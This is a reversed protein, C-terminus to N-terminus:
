SKGPKVDMTVTFREVPVQEVVTKQSVVLDVNSILESAQGLNTMFTAVGFASFAYGSLELKKGTQALSTLWLENPLARSVEDLIRVPGAQAAVLAEITKLKDQLLQRDKQLKDVLKAVEEIRKLEMRTSEIRVEVAAVEGSLWVWGYAMVALVVVGGVGALIVKPNVPASRKQEDRPLLNIKIM